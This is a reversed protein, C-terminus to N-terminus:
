HVKLNRLKILKILWKVSNQNFNESLRNLIKIKFLHTSNLRGCVSETTIRFPWISWVVLDLGQSRMSKIINYSFRNRRKQSHFKSGGVSSRFNNLLLKPLNIFKLKLKLGQHKLRLQFILFTTIATEFLSCDTCNININHLLDTDFIQITSFVCSLVGHVRWTHCFFMSTLISLDFRNEFAERFMSKRRSLTFNNELLKEIRVIHIVRLRLRRITNRKYTQGFHISNYKM